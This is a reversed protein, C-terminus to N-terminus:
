RLALHEVVIAGVPPLGIRQERSIRGIKPVSRHVAIDDRGTQRGAPELQTSLDDPRLLMKGQAAAIIVPLVFTAPVHHALTLGTVPLAIARLCHDPLEGVVIRDAARPALLTPPVARLLRDRHAARDDVVAPGALQDIVRKEARARAQDRASIVPRM